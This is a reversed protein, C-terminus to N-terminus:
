STAPQRDHTRGLREATGRPDEVRIVQGDPVATHHETTYFRVEHGDPDHLLPLVWGITAFQV